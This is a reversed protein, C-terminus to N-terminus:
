FPIPFTPELAAERGPRPEDLGGRDVGDLGPAWLRRTERSYRLPAADFGDLPLASLQRPVLADLSDPLEGHELQYARLGLLTQAAALETDVLCRTINMSGGPPYGMLLQVNGASNRDLAMRMWEWPTPDSSRSTIQSCPLASEQQAERINRALGARTRNPQHKYARPLWPLPNLPLVIELLAPDRPSVPRPLAMLVRYQTAWMRSWSAPDTRYGDLADAAARAADRTPRLHRLSSRLSLSAIKRMGQSVIADTV